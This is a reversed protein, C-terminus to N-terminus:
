NHLFKETKMRLTMNLETIDRGEQETLITKKGAEVHSFSKETTRQHKKDTNIDHLLSISKSFGFSSYKNRICQYDITNPNNSFLIIGVAVIGTIIYATFLQGRSKIHENEDYFDMPFFERGLIFVGIGVALLIGHIIRTIIYVILYKQIDDLGKPGVMTEPEFPKLIRSELYFIVSFVAIYILIKLIYRKEKNDM